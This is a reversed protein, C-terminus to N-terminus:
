RKPLHFRKNTFILLFLYILSKPVVFIPVFPMLIEKVSSSSMLFPQFCASFYVFAKGSLLFLRMRKVVSVHAQAFM